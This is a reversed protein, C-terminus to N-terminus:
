DLEKTLVTEFLLRKDGFYNYLMEKNIGALADRRMCLEARSSCITM